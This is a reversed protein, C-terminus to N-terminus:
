VYKSIIEDEDGYMFDIIPIQIMTYAGPKQKMSARAAAVLIQSTLAPNNIQMSFDLLQNSTKGSTGKREIHVGHGMDIFQDIDRVQKVYTEDDAFYADSKIAREVEAFVADPKLEVYVMRKHIGARAPMTMSLANKVGPIERAAVTHGMSMGPGFNTFTLGKPTMFDFMCRIISDTGPDWGASVIAVSNHPKAILDLSKRLNALEGHVDYCDVTNINQKLIEKACDPINRTPTCLIAVDVNDLEKISSVYPIDQLEHPKEGLPRQVVGALEMDLASNVASVAARGVNGYGIIAVKIKKGM